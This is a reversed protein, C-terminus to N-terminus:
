VTKRPKPTPAYVSERLAAFELGLRAEAHLVVLAAARADEGADHHEFELGLAHRLHGLGHGGNGKFEPWAARAIRVSDTWSLAPVPLGVCECAKIIARSDFSSHQVLPHRMLLPSLAALVDAFVPAGFVTEPGIGHLQTNFPSFAMCPDIYTSFTEIRNDHDVCALGIQCISAADGSATEVDLAVFRYDGRPLSLMQSM